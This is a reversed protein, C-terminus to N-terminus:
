WCFAFEDVLTHFGVSSKVFVRLLRMRCARYQIHPTLAHTLYHWNRQARTQRKMIYVWQNFHWSCWDGSITFGHQAKWSLPMKPMLIQIRCEFLNPRILHCWQSAQTRKQDETVREADDWVHRCCFMLRSLLLCSCPFNFYVANEFLNHKNIHWNNHKQIQIQVKKGSSPNPNSLHLHFNASQM